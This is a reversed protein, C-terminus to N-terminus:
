WSPPDCRGGVNDYWFYRKRKESDEDSTPEEQWSTGKGEKEKQNLEEREM